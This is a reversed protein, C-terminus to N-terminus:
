RKVRTGMIDVRPPRRFTLVLSTFAQIAREDTPIPVKYQGLELQVLVPEDDVLSWSAQYHPEPYQSVQINYVFASISDPTVTLRATAPVADPSEHPRTWEMVGKKDLDRTPWGLRTLLDDITMAVDYGIM